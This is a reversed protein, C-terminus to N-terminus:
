ENYFVFDAGSTKTDIKFLCKKTELNSKIKNFNYVGITKEVNMVEDDKYNESFSLDDNKDFYLFNFSLGDYEDGNVECSIRHINNEELKRM